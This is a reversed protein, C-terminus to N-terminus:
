GRAAADEDDLPLDPFAKTLNAKIARAQKAFYKRLTPVTASVLGDMDSEISRTLAAIVRDQEETGCSNASDCCTSRQGAKDGSLPRGTQASKGVGAPDANADDVTNQDQQAHDNPQNGQQNGPQTVPEKPQKMQLEYLWRPVDGWEVPEEGNKARIENITKIGTTADRNDLENDLKREAPIPNDFEVIINEGFEIVLEKNIKEQIQVLRPQITEM